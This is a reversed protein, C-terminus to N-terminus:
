LFRDSTQRYIQPCNKGKVANEAAEAGTNFLMTRKEYLGPTIRNLKEALKVYPEYMMVHFSTHIYRDLQQKVAEVVQAPCHGANLMGMGGAFDIFTNGDIDTMLAGEAKTLFSPVTTSLGHVVNKEKVELLAQAKPGPILTNLRIFKRSKQDM